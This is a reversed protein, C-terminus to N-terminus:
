TDPGEPTAQKATQKVNNWPQLCLLGLPVLQDLVALNYWSSRATRRFNALETANRNEVYKCLWHAAPARRTGLLDRNSEAIKLRGATAAQVSEM